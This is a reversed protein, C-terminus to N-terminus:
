TVINELQQDQLFRTLNRLLLDLLRDEFRAGTSAVHPSLYCNPATWLTSDPPTPEEATTDLVAASLHGSNLAAVLAAEDVLSGRALNCLIAGPKLSAMRERGFLGMTDSNAPAAIVVVDCEALMDDLEDATFLQDVDADTDGPKARRRNAVVRMEFARALRATARGIAGLGVIGLTMGALSGCYVFEWRGEQQNRDIARFRKSIQLLRGIAFEAIAGAAIGAGNTLLIGQRALVPVDIHDVGASITQIWRLRSAREILGAPIDLLVLITSRELVAWDAESLEPATALLDATVRGAARANRLGMDEMYPVEYVQTGPAVAEIAARVPDTLRIMTM